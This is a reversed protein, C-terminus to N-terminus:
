MHTLTIIQSWMKNKGCLKSGFRHGQALVALTHAKDTCNRTRCMYGFESETFKMMRLRLSQATSQMRWSELYTSIQFQQITSTTVSGLCLKHHSGSDASKHAASCQWVSAPNRNL